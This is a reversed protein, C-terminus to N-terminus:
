SKTLESRGEWILPSNNSCIIYHYTPIGVISKFFAGRRIIEEKTLFKYEYFAFELEFVESTNPLLEFEKPLIFSTIKPLDSISTIDSIQDIQGSMSSIRTTNINTETM